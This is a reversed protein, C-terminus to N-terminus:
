QHEFHDCGFDVVAERGLRLCVVGRLRRTLQEISGDGPQLVLATPPDPCTVVIRRAAWGITGYLVRAVVPHEGLLELLTAYNCRAPRLEDFIVDSQGDYNHLLFNEFRCIPAGPLLRRAMVTKGAGKEGYIWIVQRVGDFPVVLARKLRDFARFGWVAAAPSEELLDKLTGGRNLVDLMADVNKKKWHVPRQGFEIFAGDKECYKTAKYVDSRMPEVHVGDGGLADVVAAMARKTRFQVFGQYHFRGTTPCIEHGYCLYTMSEPRFFPPGDHDPDDPFYTWCWDKVQVRRPPVIQATSGSMVPYYQCM